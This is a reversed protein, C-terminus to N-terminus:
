PNARVINRLKKARLFAHTVFAMTLLYCLSLIAIGEMGM